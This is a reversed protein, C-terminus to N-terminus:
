VIMSASLVSRSEVGKLFPYIELPRVYVPTLLVAMIDKAAPLHAISVRACSAGPRSDDAVRPQGDIPVLVEVHHIAQVITHLLEALIVREDGLPARRAAM